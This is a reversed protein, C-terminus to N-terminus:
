RSLLANLRSKVKARGLLSLTVNLDRGHTQGTLAARTSMFLQKGKFGTETQVNKLMGKISDPTFAAASEVQKLFSALVVPIHEEALIAQAEEEM